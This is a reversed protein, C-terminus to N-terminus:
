LPALGSAFSDLAFLICLSFMTQMSEHSIEPLLRRRPKITSPTASNQAASSRLLPDTEVRDEEDRSSAIGPQPKPEVEVSASLLAILVLKVLGLAAYCYFVLRYADVLQWGYSECLTHVTWGSSMIGVAAGATGLLSYWAYIDSRQDPDTLHAVM